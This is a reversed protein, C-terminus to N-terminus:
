TIFYTLRKYINPELTIVNRCYKHFFVNMPLIKILKEGSNIRPSWYIGGCTNTHVHYMSCAICIAHLKIRAIIPKTAVQITATPTHCCTHQQSRDAWQPLHPCKSGLQILNLIVSMRFPTQVYTMDCGPCFANIFM